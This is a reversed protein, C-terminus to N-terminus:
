KEIKIRNTAGIRWFLVKPENKIDQLRHSESVTVKATLGYLNSEIYEPLREFMSTEKNYFEWLGHDSDTWALRSELKQYSPSTTSIPNNTDIELTLCMKHNGIDKPIIFVLTPRDNTLTEGHIPELLPIIDPSGPIENVTSSIEGEGVISVKFTYNSGNILNKCKYNTTVNNNIITLLRYSEDPEDNLKFYIKQSVVEENNVLSWFLDVCSNDPLVYLNEINM